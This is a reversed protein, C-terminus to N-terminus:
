ALDRLLKKKKAEEVYDALKNSPIVKFELGLNHYLTEACRKELLPAKITFMKELAQTYAVLDKTALSSDVYFEVAVATQKGVVSAIGERISRQLVTKFNERKTEQLALISNRGPAAM